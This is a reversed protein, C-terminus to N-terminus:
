STYPFLFSPAPEYQMFENPIEALRKVDDPPEVGEEGDTVIWQGWRATVWFTCSFSMATTIPVVEGRSTAPYGKMGGFAQSFSLHWESELIM